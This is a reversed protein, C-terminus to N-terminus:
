KNSTVYGSYLHIKLGAAKVMESVGGQTTVDPLVGSERVIGPM